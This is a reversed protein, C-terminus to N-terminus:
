PLEMVRLAKALAKVQEQLLGMEQDLKEVRDTPPPPAVSLTGGGVQEETELRKIHRKISSIKNRSAIASVMKKYAASKDSGLYKVMKGKVKGQKSKEPDASMLRYYVYSKGNKKVTYSSIWTNAIAVNGSSQIQSIQKTLFQKLSM